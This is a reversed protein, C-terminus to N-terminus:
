SVEILKRKKPDYSWVMQLYELTEKSTSIKRSVMNPITLEELTHILPHGGLLFDLSIEGNQSIDLILAIDLIRLNRFCAINECKIDRGLYLEELSSAMPHDVTLFDFNVNESNQISLIQLNHLHRLPIDTDSYRIDLKHLTECWSHSSNLFLLPRGWTSLSKLAHLHQLNEDLTEDNVVLEELVSCLPHFGANFTNPNSSLFGMEIKVSEGIDLIKLNHLHQLTDDTMRSRGTHLEQLSQAMPHSSSDIFKLMIDDNMTLKRLAKLHQIGRDDVYTQKINLEQLTLCLPHRENIFELTVITMEVSLCRLNRLNRLSEDVINTKDALLTELSDNLPHHADCLVDLSTANNSVELYKLNRFLVLHKRDFGTCGIHLEVLTEHMPCAVRFPKLGVGCCWNIDLTKLTKMKQFEVNGINSNDAILEQLSDYMTEPLNELHAQRNNTIDLHSLHPFRRIDRDSLQDNEDRLSTITDFSLIMEPTYFTIGRKLCRVMTKIDLSDMINPLICNRLENLITLDLYRHIIMEQMLLFIDDKTAHQLFIDRQVIYTLLRNIRTMSSLPYYSPDGNHVEIYTSLSKSTDTYVIRM